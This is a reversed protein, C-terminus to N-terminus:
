DLVGAETLRRIEAEDLGLLEHLVVATHEGLLPASRDPQRPVGPSRWPPGLVTQSGLQPHTVTIFTGRTQLHETTVLMASDMSPFAAVGAQQLCATVEMPTYQQTWATLLTDLAQQHCVRCHADAFRPDDQWEPHGTAQCLARWETESGVAITVWRDDGQCRYCGHPAMTAQQNGQRTPSQRNMTYSLLTHGILCTIAERASLDIHQGTGTRRRAFLAALIAFALTMGVRLDMSIRMETPPGDAYGTLHGVGSLANFIGAYGGYASEPGTSGNASASAMILGPNIRSLTTYDLGLRQMVGPRFNEVLVDCHAVLRKALAVGEPKALNLCVSRKNLNLDNFDTSADLPASQYFGRRALDLRQHSEVKLIEAGMFGLLEAAYPGAAAWTFDLVRIHQLFPQV